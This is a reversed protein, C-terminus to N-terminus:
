AEIIELLHPVHESLCHRCITVQVREGTLASQLELDLAEAMPKMRCCSCLGPAVTYDLRLTELADGVTALMPDEPEPQEKRKRWFMM